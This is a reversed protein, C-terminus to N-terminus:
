CRSMGRGPLEAEAARENPMVPTFAGLPGIGNAQIRARPFRINPDRRAQDARRTGQPGGTTDGVQAPRAAGGEQM